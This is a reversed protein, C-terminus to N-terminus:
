RLVKFKQLIEESMDNMKKEDEPTEHDYGILHLFGHLALFCIERKYSHGYEIAQKEAFSKCIVIDGLDIHGDDPNIEKALQKFDFKKSFDLMPFSLVDTAKDISRFEQNLRHIKEEDAIIVSVSIRSFDLSFFKLAEHFIKKIKLKYFINDLNEFYIKM